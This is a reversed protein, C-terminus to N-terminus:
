DFFELIVVESLGPHQVGLFQGSWRMHRYKSRWYHPLWLLRRQSPSLVWGDLTVECGHSLLWPPVGQPCNVFGIEQLKKEGSESDEIIKWGETHNPDKVHWIECGDPSFWPGLICDLLTTTSALCRGTSTDYIALHLIPSGANCGLTVVCSFDHSISARLFPPGCHSPPSLDLTTIRISDNTNVRANTTALSWTIIKDGVIVITNESMGLARVEMGTDITLQPNGSKLDLVVVTDRQQHVFAALSGDPSYELTFNNQQPSLALSPSIISDRTDWLYIKSNSFLLISKGNPSFLPSAPLHRIPIALKQHLTYGAPSEKWVQVEQITRYVFFHGNSSFSINSGDFPSIKSFPKSNQVDWVLFTDELQIALRSLSPIFQSSIYMETNTIGEPAPFSKVEEPTHTLTFGVEWITIYGLKITAFQLFEGHTWIPWIIEGEPAYHLHTHMTSLDHIAITDKLDQDLYIAALMKGDMSYTPPNDLNDGKLGKHFITYVTGGTHLDWTVLGEHSFQTLFCGDPSFKLRSILPDLFSKFTSVVGLTAPDRIEVVKSKTVAIFRNCSSWAAVSGFDEHYTTAVVQDWTTSLGRVVRASPREYQKYMKHVMSTQPSLSLASIYIHPASSSILDFFTIVFRSYDRAINLTPSEQFCFMLYQFYIFLSIYGVDLWKVTAELADVAGRVAGIVSLVELWFLFKSILFQHLIELTRVPMQGILHKHWSRCAYELPKNIYLNTREKLDDVESNAVGDPLRCMNQELRQDMLELCSVLLTAHQDPPHIYFRPNTCRAPDMMFDPFSKHFPRVPDCVDEQLILLSHMSSLLPFVADLDFGLLTAITSPSLPNVALVVAGLISQINSDDEQDGNDGFAEQLISTYLSDLTTNARFGIRGEFGSEPSQLLRDLQRRHNKGKQDIFRITAMAYVFFGAARDCLLDLQEETPWDDLVRRRAKLESFKNRFFLRVDRNVQSPGVEHLVFVDTARALLPLRFGEQIRPEPRGTVFFKTKSIEGVLQGLVSLIASSSEDDKCEDLADIVIVTSIDSEVLPHVILKKMQGFLSEYVIDPDSQILPIFTSRFEHYKRALQVALTPFIFKLDSRDEFDRSCFFSAGLQGSAFIREAVTQAITSKGTGALGNLWYVPPKDFDRAWLEIEDLVATRTGKLCGNRDGHRHEAQQAYRFNNLVAVDASLPITDPLRPRFASISPTRVLTRVFPTLEKARSCRPVSVM